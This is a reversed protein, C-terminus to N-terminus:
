TLAECEPCQTEDPNASASPPGYRGTDTTGNMTKGCLAILGGIENRSVTHVTRM